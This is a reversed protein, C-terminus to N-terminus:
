STTRVGEKVVGDFLAFLTMIITFTTETWTFIFAQGALRSIILVVLVSGTDLAGTLSLLFIKWKSTTHNTGTSNLTLVAFRAISIARAILLRTMLGAM